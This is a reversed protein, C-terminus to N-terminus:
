THVLKSKSRGLGVEMRVKARSVRLGRSVVPESSMASKALSNEVRLNPDFAM